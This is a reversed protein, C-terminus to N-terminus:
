ELFYDRGAVIGYKKTLWAELEAARREFRGGYEKMYAEVREKLDPERELVDPVLLNAPLNKTFYETTKSRPQQLLYAQYENAM